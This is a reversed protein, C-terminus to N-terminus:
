VLINYRWNMFMNCSNFVISPSVIALTMSINYDIYAARLLFGNTIFKSTNICKVHHVTPLNYPMSVPSQIAFLCTRINTQTSVPVSLKPRGRPRDARAPVYSGYM